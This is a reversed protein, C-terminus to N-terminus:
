FILLIYRYQADEYLEFEYGLEDLLPIPLNPGTLDPLGEDSLEFLKILFPPVIILLRIRHLLESRDVFFFSAAFIPM